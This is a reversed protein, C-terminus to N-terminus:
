ILDSHHGPQGSGHLVKWARPQLHVTKSHELWSSESKKRASAANRELGQEVCCAANFTRKTHAVDSCAGVQELYSALFAAASASCIAFTWLPPFQLLLATHRFDQSAVHMHLSHTAVTYALPM